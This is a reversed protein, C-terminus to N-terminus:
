GRVLDRCKGLPVSVTAPTVAKVIRQEMANTAAVNSKKGLQSGTASEIGTSANRQPYLRALRKVDNTWKQNPAAKITAGIEAQIASRPSATITLGTSRNGAASRPSATSSHTEPKSMM